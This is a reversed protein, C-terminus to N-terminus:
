RKHEHFWWCWGRLEFYYRHVFSIPHHALEAKHTTFNTPFCPFSIDICSFNFVAFEVWFRRLHPLSCEWGRITYFPFVEVGYGLHLASGSTIHSRVLLSQSQSIDTGLALVLTVALDLVRFCVLTTAKM